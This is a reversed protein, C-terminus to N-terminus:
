AKIVGYTFVRVLYKRFLIALVLSPLTAVLAAASAAGWIIGAGRFGAITVPM